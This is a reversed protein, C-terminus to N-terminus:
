MNITSKFINMSFDICFESGYHKFIRKLKKLMTKESQYDAIFLWEYKMKRWLTEILNLHPCRPPLFYITLGQSEWQEFMARTLASTHFTARDLILTTPRVIKTAFDNILGIFIESKMTVGDPLPYTYLQHTIPNLLGLVNMIKKKRSPIAVQEGKKQYCYPIYPQLSFGCEDGFYVDTIGQKALFLM